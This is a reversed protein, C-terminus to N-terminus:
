HFVNSLKYKKELAYDCIISILSICIKKRTEKLDIRPLYKTLKDINFSTCNLGTNIKRRDNYVTTDEVIIVRLNWISDDVKNNAYSSIKFRFPIEPWEEGNDKVVALKIFKGADGENKPKLYVKNGVYVGAIKEFDRGKTSHNKVFNKDDDEYYEDHIMFIAKWFISYSLLSTPNNNLLKMIRCLHNKIAIVDGNKESEKVIDILKEIGSKINKSEIKIVCLDNFKFTPYEHSISAKMSQVPLYFYVDLNKFRFIKVYNNEVILNQIYDDPFQSYDIYSLANLHSKIRQIFGAKSWPYKACLGMRGIVIGLEDSTDNIFINWTKNQKLTLKGSFLDDTVSNKYIKNICEIIENNLINKITYYKTEVDLKGSVWESPAHVTMTYIKAIRKSQPLLSHSATRVIRGCIQKWKSMNSIKNLIMLNTTNYFSVGAAAVSSIMLVSIVEGTLNNPNNWIETLKNRQLESVEGSLVAYCIPSFAHTTKDNHESLTLGCRLCRTNNKMATSYEVYGNVKLFEIYQKLGGKAIKDHYCIVKEGRLTNYLCVRVMEAGIASYNKLEPYLLGKGTYVGSSFYIDDNSSFYCDHLSLRDQVDEVANVSEAVSDSNQLWEEYKKLQIGQLPVSYVVMNENSKSSDVKIMKNGLHWTTPLLSDSPKVVIANLNEESTVSSDNKALRFKLPQNSEVLETAENLDLRKKCMTVSAEQPKTQFKMREVKVDRKNLENVIAPEASTSATPAQSTSKSDNNASYYLFKDSLFDSIEKFKDQRLTRVSTDLIVRDTIYDSEDIFKTDNLVSYISALECINNNIITGSLFVFRINYEKAKKILLGIIFGYTNMGQQNWLHQCEDIIILTNRLTNLFDQSVQLEGNKWGQILSDVHQVYKQEDLTPFAMNFISQFNKFIFNKYIQKKLLQLDKQGEERTERFPSNTKEQIKEMQERTTFHFEPKLIDRQFANQTVWSGLVVIKNYVMSTHNLFRMKNLQKLYHTAIFIAAATKGTGLGYNCILTRNDNNDLFYYKPMTQYYRLIFHNSDSPTKIFCSYINKVSNLKVDSGEMKPISDPSDIYFTSSFIQSESM